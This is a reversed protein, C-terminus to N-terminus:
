SHFLGGRRAGRRRGRCTFHSLSAPIRKFGQEAPLPALSRQIERRAFQTQLDACQTKVADHTRRISHDRHNRIRLRSCIEKTFAVTQIVAAHFLNRHIANGEMFFSFIGEPFGDFALHIFSDVGTWSFLLSSSNAPGEAHSDSGQPCSVPPYAQEQVSALAGQSVLM